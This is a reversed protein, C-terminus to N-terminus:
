VVGVEDIQMFDEFVFGLDIEDNVEGSAIRKFLCHQFQILGDWKQCSLDDKSLYEFTNSITVFLTM